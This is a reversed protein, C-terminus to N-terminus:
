LRWNGVVRFGLSYFLLVKEDIFIMLFSKWFFSTETFLFILSRWSKVRVLLEALSNFAFCKWIKEVLLDVGTATIVYFVSLVNFNWLVGVLLRKFTVFILILCFSTVVIRWLCGTLKICQLRQGILPFLYKALQESLETM